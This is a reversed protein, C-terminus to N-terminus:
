QKTLLIQGSLSQILSSTYGPSFSDPVTTIKFSVTIQPKGSKTDRALTGEFSPLIYSEYTDGLRTSVIFHSEYNGLVHNTSDVSFAFTDKNYVQGIIPNYTNVGAVDGTRLTPTGQPPTFDFYGADFLNPSTANPDIVVRQFAGTLRYEDGATLIETLVVTGTWTGVMDASTVPPLTGGTGSITFKASAVASNTMGAKVALAKLTTTASVNIATAYLTSATTPTSGDTTYYITAGSTSCSITVSQATSFTGGNPSFTPTAVANGGPGGSGPLTHVPFKFTGSINEAAKWTGPTATTTYKYNKITCNAKLGAKVFQTQNMTLVDELRCSSGYTGKLLFQITVVAGKLVTGGPKTGKAKIIIKPGGSPSKGKSDLTVMGTVYGFEYYITCQPLSFEEQATFYGKVTISDKNTTGNFNIKASAKSVSWDFNILPNIVVTISKQVFDFSSASATCTVTYTSASQYAHTTPAGTGTSGDGFDWTVTVPQGNSNAGVAAFNVTAGVIAPNPTAVPQSSFSTAPDRSFVAVYGPGVPTVGGDAQAAGVVVTLGSIGINAGMRDDTIGGAATLKQQQTWTTGSRSFVYAAGQRANAGVDAIYAGVVATDGQLAGGIGFDNLAPDSATLKAEQTWLGGSLTFIYSANNGLAGVLFSNGDLSVPRGFNHGAAGDSATVKQIQLWQGPSSREFVYVGGKGTERGNDSIALRYNQLSVFYGFTSDAVRDTTSLTTELSWVGSATLLVKAFIYVLNENSGIAITEQDLSVGIGFYGQAVGGGPRTIKQTQTWVTGSRDFVYVAGQTGSAAAAQIVITNGQIVPGDFGGLNDGAAGDNATLKQQFTWGSTGRVFVYAAGQAANGGVAANPAAIVMTDGSIACAGFYDGIVGDPSVLRAEKNLLGIGARPAVSPQSQNSNVPIQQTDQALLNTALFFM